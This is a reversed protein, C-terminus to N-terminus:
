PNNQPPMPMEQALPKQPMQEQLYHELDETAEKLVRVMGDDNNERGMPSVSADSASEPSREDQLPATFTSELAELSQLFEAMAAQRLNQQNQNM